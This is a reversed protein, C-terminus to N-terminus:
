KLSSIRFLRDEEKLPHGNLCTIQPFACFVLRQAYPSMKGVAHYTTLSKCREVACTIEVAVYDVDPEETQFSTRTQCSEIEGESYASWHACQPCVIRLPFSEQSLRPLGNETQRVRSCSIHVGFYYGSSHYLQQVNKCQVSAFVTALATAQAILHKEWYPAVSFFTVISGRPINMQACRLRGSSRSRPTGIYRRPISTTTM